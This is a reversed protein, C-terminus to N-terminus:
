PAVGRAWRSWQRMSYLGNLKRVGHPFGRRISEVSRYAAYQVGLFSDVAAHPGGLTTAGSAYMRATGHRMGLIEFDNSVQLRGLPNKPLQHHGILDDLLPSRDPSAILGTCDVVFDATLDLHGGGALSNAIRTSVRGDDTPSLGEVVGYEPRYWGERLGERVIRRWDRRDATTTGGWTELLSKREDPTAAELTARQQGTWSGKPWNFPQFEFENEIGRRSRGYTHGETLRSRHLHVISIKPQHKREEYLRQIIRSAVIGRGRLVITGGKARLQDYIGHHDEYANVVRERDSYKERYAALDPLLQIAPYGIAMHVYNAAIAFHRRHEGTSASAIVVLRGEASKRIARIRGFRLMSTWGIRAAERDIAAFVEGSRPTFTQVFAPEALIQWSKRSAQGLDGSRLDHLIERTAYGPFGWVNDPRSDSNSRLREHPPIQSNLCLRQYRAYPAPETGVVAIQNIPVGSVRLLDAWQFTGIGGGLGLFTVEQVEVGNERLQSESILPQDLIDPGVIGRAAPTPPEVAPSLQVLQTANPDMHQPVAMLTGDASAAIVTQTRHSTAMLELRVASGFRIQDGPALNATTVREGNVFTGNSSGLDAIEVRSGTVTLRAHHRSVDAADLAVNNDPGRGFSTQGESLALDLAKAGDGGVLRYPSPTAENATM